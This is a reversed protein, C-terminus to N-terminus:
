ADISKVKIGKQQVHNQQYPAKSEQHHRGSQQHTKQQSAEGQEYGSREIQPQNGSKPHYGQQYVGTQSGGQQHERQQYGSKEVQYGGHQQIPKEHARTEQHVLPKKYTPTFAQTGTTPKECTDCGYNAHNSIPPIYVTNCATYDANFGMTGCTIERYGITNDKRFIVM